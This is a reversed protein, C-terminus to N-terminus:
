NTSTEYSQNLPLELCGPVWTQISMSSSVRVEINAHCGNGRPSHCTKHHICFCRGLCPQPHLKEPLRLMSLAYPDTPASGGILGPARSVQLLCRHPSKKFDRHSLRPFPPTKEKKSLIERHLGARGMVRLEGAEAEHTSPNCVQIIIGPEPRKIIHVSANSRIM